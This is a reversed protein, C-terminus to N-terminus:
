ASATSVVRGERLVVITGEPLARWAETSLPVSSVLAIDQPAEPMSLGALSVGDNVAACHRCLLHLGPPRIQGSDDRRRHGHAFVADGDSYVFNAPGVERLDRALATVVM